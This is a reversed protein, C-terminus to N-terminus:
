FSLKEKVKTNDERQPDTTLRFFHKGASQVTGVAIFNNARDSGSLAM